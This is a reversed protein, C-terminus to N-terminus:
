LKELSTRILALSEEVRRRNEVLELGDPNLVELQEVASILDAITKAQAVALSRFENSRRVLKGLDKFDKPRIPDMHGSLRVPRLRLPRPLRMPQPPEGYRIGRGLSDALKEFLEAWEHQWRTRAQIEIPVGGPFVIVHVARYGQAPEVRRDVLKPPRYEDSFLDVLQAALADQETRTASDVIRMGALDQISKLWSGGYRHLKELITGTNKIRSTPSVGLRERVREVAQGLVVSDAALLQHLLQLDEDAPAQAQILRVGLREIQSNSLPRSV